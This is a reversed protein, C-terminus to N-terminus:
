LVSRANRKRRYREGDNENRLREIKENEIVTKDEKESYYTIIVRPFYVFNDNSRSTPVFSRGSVFSINVRNGNSEITKGKGDESTSAQADKKSGPNKFNENYKDNLVDRLHVFDRRAYELDDYQAIARIRFIKNNLPTVFVLYEEFGELPKPPKVRYVDNVIGHIKQVNPSDLNLKDGFRLGFASDIHTAFAGTTLLVISLAIFTISKTM